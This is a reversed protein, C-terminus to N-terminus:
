LTVILLFYNEVVVEVDTISRNITYVAITQDLVKLLEM